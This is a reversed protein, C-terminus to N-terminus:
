ANLYKKVAPLRPLILRDFLWVFLISVGVLPFIIGLVIMLLIVSKIIKKSPSKPAGIKGEPKRSRWLAFGSVAIGVIGVCVFLGILQNWFGFETGKHITIGYAIIKGLTHYNNYRYDALVAGTYQDIHMTVEDKAKPPFDSLTFVGDPEQPIIIKYGLKIGEQDAISVVDDMSLQTYQQNTSIPVPLNEASWPVDAIEKTKVDSKPADGVWISPPYGIGANTTLAQFNNGWLGSWPLGTLILFLLGLSIWFSPVVHLDRILIKKNKKIRPVWVGWLKSKGKLTPWGLYLGTIILILAWCAAWEVIRDGVTGMMLEGHIKEFVNILMKSDEMKGLINTTYPDVYVTYRTNNEDIGVESSRDPNDSPKFSKIKAKPYSTQVKNIQESPTTITEQPTVEYYDQYLTAEIQPKFLYVSGTIALIILFPLIILGAYFHWRWIHQYLPKTQVKSGNKTTIKKFFNM